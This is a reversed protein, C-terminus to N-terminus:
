EPHAISGRLLVGAQDFDVPVRLADRELCDIGRSLRQKGMIDIQVIQHKRSAGQGNGGVCRGLRVDDMDEGVVEAPNVRGEGVLGLVSFIGNVLGRVKVAEARIARPESLGVRGRRGAGGGAGGVHRTLPGGVGTDVTNQAAPQRPGVVRGMRPDIRKVGAPEGEVTRGDRLFEFFRAVGGGVNLFAM